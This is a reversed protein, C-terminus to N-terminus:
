TDQCTMEKTTKGGGLIIQMHIILFLLLCIDGDYIDKM